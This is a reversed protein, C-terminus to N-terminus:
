QPQFPNRWGGRSGSAPKQPFAKALYDLIVDRYAPELEPMGHKATMWVLSAQWQDRSMGQAAVLRFAHCAGCFGFAEERGPFDPFTAQDEEEPQFTTSAMLLGMVAVLPVIRSRM